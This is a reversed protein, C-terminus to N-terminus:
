EVTRHLTLKCIKNKILNALDNTTELNLLEEKTIILIKIKNRTLGGLVQSYACDNNEPNGTIGNFTVLIGYRSGRDEIKRIFWSVDSSGIPNNTNKCEVIIVAELFCLESQSQNNWFALDIEESRTRDLFNRELFSIGSVNEFIYKILDEFIEGKADNTQANDSRDLYDEITEKSYTAM